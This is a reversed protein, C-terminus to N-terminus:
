KGSQVFQVAADKQPDQGAKIQDSTIKVIRDPTIGKKDINQGNPRYWRAVTIKAETGGVLKIVQQESGKGYSQVGFLTAVKNDHLASATIESASASGGDILVATPLDKLLYNGNALETGVSTNGRKEVMITAQPPLWLSSVEVASTVEGGPNGRLDLVVGKVNHDKFEKAAKEALIGTDDSFQNIQMYGVNGDLIKWTVSPVTINDRTITLTLVQTNDRVIQLTVKTGKAGRIKSVANDVTIGSTDKGDIASILDGPRLGAKSAPTGDIPAIVSLNGHADKGLEAGIGSFTGQLQNNFAEADSATFYETHTDGTATLMGAKMGDLLQAETLKGDYNSKLATYLQNVSSYDLKGPLDKNQSHLAAMSIRGDGVGMGLLFVAVVIVVGVAVFVQMTRKRKRAAENENAVHKHKFAYAM